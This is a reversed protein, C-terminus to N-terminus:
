ALSRIEALLRLTRKTLNECQEAIAEGKGQRLELRMHTVERALPVVKLGYEKAEEQMGRGLLRCLAGDCACIAACAEIIHSRTVYIAPTQYLMDLVTDHAKDIAQLDKLMDGSGLQALLKDVPDLPAPYARLLRLNIDLQRRDEDILRQALVDRWRACVEPEAVLTVRAQGPFMELHRSLDMPAWERTQVFDFIDHIELGEMEAPPIDVNVSAMARVDHSVVSYLNFDPGRLRYSGIPTFNEPLQRQEELRAISVYWRDPLRAPSSHLLLPALATYREMREGLEAWLDSFTLFPGTLSRQCSGNVWIPDNHYAFVGWGKAGNAFALNV